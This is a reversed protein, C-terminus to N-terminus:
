TDAGTGAPPTTVGRVPRRARKAHAARAAVGLAARRSAETMILTKM